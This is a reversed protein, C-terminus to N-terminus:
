KGGKFLQNAYIESMSVWCIAVADAANDRLSEPIINLNVGLGEDNHVAQIMQIKNSGGWGSFHSKVEKPNIEILNRIGWIIAMLEAWGRGRGVAIAVSPNKGSFQTEIGIWGVRRQAIAEHSALVSTLQQHLHIAREFPDNGKLKLVGFKHVTKTPLHGLAYGVCTTSPDIALLWDRNPPFPDTAVIKM